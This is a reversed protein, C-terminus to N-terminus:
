CASDGGDGRQRQDIGSESRRSLRAYLSALEGAAFRSGRPSRRGRIATALGSLLDVHVRFLWHLPRGPLRTGLQECARHRAPLVQKLPLQSNIAIQPVEFTGCFAGDGM